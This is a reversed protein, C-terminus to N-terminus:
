ADLFNRLKVRRSRREAREIALEYCGVLRRTACRWTHQLAEDRAARGLSEALARSALLRRIPELASKAEAADYLLGTEEHKVVARVEPTDPAVIPLGSAMVELALGCPLIASPPAVFLDASAFQAARDEVALRAFSRNSGALGSGAAAVALRADPLERLLLGLALRNQHPALPSACLLVPGDAGSGGRLRERVALTRKNPHFLESDVGARWVGVAAAVRRPEPRGARAGRAAAL